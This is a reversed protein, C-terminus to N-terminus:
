HTTDVPEFRYARNVRGKPKVDHSLDHIVGDIVAFIHGRRGLLYRGTSHEEVYRKVTIGCDGAPKVVMGNIGNALMDTMIKALAPHKTRCRDKRGAVKLMAHAMAYEIGAAIAIGRVVCDLREQPQSSARGGDSIQVPKM